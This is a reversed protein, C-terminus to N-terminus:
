YYQSKMIWEYVILINLALFDISGNAGKAYVSSLRAWMPRAESWPINRTTILNQLNQGARTMGLTTKGESIAYDTALDM